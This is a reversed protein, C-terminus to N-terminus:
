TRGDLAVRITFSLTVSSWDHPHLQNPNQSALFLITQLPGSSEIKGYVASLTHKEYKLVKNFNHLISPSPFQRFSFSSKRCLLRMARMLPIDCRVARSTRQNDLLSIRQTSPRPSSGKFSSLRAFFGMLWSPSIRLMFDSSNRFTAAVFM